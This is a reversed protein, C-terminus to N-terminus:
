GIIKNLEVIMDLFYYHNVIVKELQFFNYIRIKLYKM